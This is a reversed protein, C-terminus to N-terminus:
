MLFNFLLFFVSAWLVIKYIKNKLLRKNPCSWVYGMGLAPEKIQIMVGPESYKRLIAPNPPPLNFFGKWFRWYGDPKM